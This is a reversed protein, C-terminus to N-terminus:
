SARVSTSIITCRTASPRMSASCSSKNPLRRPLGASTARSARDLVTGGIEAQPDLKRADKLGIEMTPDQVTEVVQRKAFVQLDGTLPDVQVQVVANNNAYNRRYAHVLAEEIAGLIVDRPLDKEACIQNVAMILESRM